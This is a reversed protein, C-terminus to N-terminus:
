GAIADHGERIAAEYEAVTAAFQADAACMAEIKRCAHLVTTHDRDGFFRGIWPLSQNTMKRALYMAIQRPRVVEAMRTPGVIEAPSSRYVAALHSIVRSVMFKSGHKTKVRVQSAIKNAEFAARQRAALAKCREMYADWASPHRRFLQPKFGEPARSLDIGPDPIANPPNRLRKRVVSAHHIPDILESLEVM